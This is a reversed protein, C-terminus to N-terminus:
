VLEKVTQVCSSWSNNKIGPICWLMCLPEIARPLFRPDWIKWMLDWIPACNPNSRRKCPHRKRMIFMSPRQSKFDPNVMFSSGVCSFAKVFHADPATAQLDEM